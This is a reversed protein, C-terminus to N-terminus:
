FLTNPTIKFTLIDLEWLEELVPTGWENNERTEKLKFGKGEYLHRAADLTSFTWLYVKKYGKEVCFDITMDFLKRGAGLGRSEPNLFFFRFKATDDNEHVIAACGSPVGGHELIYMCEKESDFQNVLEQVGKTLYAKWIKSTFGHEEEYLKLQGSIVFDVDDLTFPRIAIGKSIM